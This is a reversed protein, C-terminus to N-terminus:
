LPRTLLGIIPKVIKQPTFRSQYLALANDALRHALAADNKLMTIKAAIDAPDAPDVMLCNERDSFIEAVGGARATIYPIKMAMSEFAKHPITRKLRECFAFQGLSVHCGLSLKRLEEIPIQERIHRINKLKLSALAADFKEMVSGWGFGIVLFDIDENELLKAAGLVHIAGAEPTIRGRFLVTFRERKKVSDDPHFVSDDAGTYVVVCKGRPVGLEEAFYEKQRETEVLIFDASRAALWDISRVYPIRLPNGRYADRSIIQTEYFSCLADFIVPRGRRAILKALPAAAYGPFGVIVADYQDRVTRHKRFLRWYKLLGPSTDTCVIVNIGNAKLGAAFVRNRSFNPDFIGFYLVTKAM